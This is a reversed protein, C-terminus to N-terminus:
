TRQTWDQFRCAVPIHLAFFSPLIKVLGDILRYHQWSTTRHSLSEQWINLNIFFLPRNSASMSFKLGVRYNTTQDFVIHTMILIPCLVVLWKQRSKIYNLSTFYMESISCSRSQLGLLSINCKLRYKLFATTCIFVHQSQSDLCTKGRILCCSHQHSKVGRGQTMSWKLFSDFGPSCM